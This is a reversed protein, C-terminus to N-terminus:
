LKIANQWLCDTNEFVNEHGICEQDYMKLTFLPDLKESKLTM